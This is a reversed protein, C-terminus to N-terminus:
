GAPEGPLVTAVGTRGGRSRARAADLRQGARQEVLGSDENGSRRLISRARSSSPAKRWAHDRSSPARIPSSPSAAPAFRRCRRCAGAVGRDGQQATRRDDRRVAARPHGGAPAGPHARVHGAGVAAERRRVRQRRRGVDLMDHLFGFGGSAYIGRLALADRGFVLLTRPRPRGAVRTESTTSHTTSEGRRAGGADEERGVRTGLQRITTRSMPWGPTSTSSCRSRRASSSADCTSRARTSSRRSRAPAVPHARSGSRAARRRAPAEAGGAPYDDFSSVAVVQPGAGIAFLMESVAPILSIIRAPPHAAPRVQTKVAHM